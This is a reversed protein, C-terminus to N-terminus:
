HSSHPFRRGYRNSRKTKPNKQSNSFKILINKNTREFTFIGTASIWFAMIHTLVPEDLLVRTFRNKPKFSSKMFSFHLHTSVFIFSFSSLVIADPKFTSQTADHPMMEAMEDPHPFCLICKREQPTVCSMRWTVVLWFHLCLLWHKRENIWLWALSFKHEAM